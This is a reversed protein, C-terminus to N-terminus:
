GPLSSCVVKTPAATSLGVRGGAGHEFPQDLQDILRLQQRTNLRYCYGDTDPRAALAIFSGRVSAHRLCCASSRPLVLLVLRRIAPNNSVKTRWGALSTVSDAGGRGAIPTRRWGRAPPPRGPSRPPPRSDDM